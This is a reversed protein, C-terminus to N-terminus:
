NIIVSGNQEFHFPLEIYDAMLTRFASLRKNPVYFLMFGGGGAGLLKGGLAGSDIGKQYFEDLYSNSILNTLSRKLKWGEHLIRGFDDIYNTELMEKLAYALRVMQQMTSYTKGNRLQQSLPQLIQNSNHTKGTYMLILNNDLEKAIDKSIKIPSVKVYGNRDFTIFNLGGFITAYQDQKGIRRKLLDLEVMCTDNALDNKSIPHPSGYGMSLLLSSIYASSGGLGTGAPVDSFCATNYLEFNKYQACMKVIDNDTPIIASLTTHPVSQCWTDPINETGAAVYVYKDISTCLVAGKSQTYYSPIDSGGGAFSIRLPTRAIVM